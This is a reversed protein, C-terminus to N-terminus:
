KKTPSAEQADRCSGCATQQNGKIEIKRQRRLFRALGSWCDERRVCEDVDPRVAPNDDLHVPQLEALPNLRGQWHNQGVLHICIPRLHHGLERGSGVDITVWHSAQLQDATLSRGRVASWNCAECQTVISTPLPRSRPWWKRGIQM